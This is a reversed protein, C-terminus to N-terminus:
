ANVLVQSRSSRANLGHGVAYRPDPEDMEEATHWNVFEVVDGNGVSNVPNKRHASKSPRSHPKQSHASNGVQMELYKFSSQLELRPQEKYKWQAFNGSDVPSSLAEPSVRKLLCDISLSEGPAIAAPNSPTVCDM